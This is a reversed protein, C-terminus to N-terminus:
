FADKERIQFTHWVVTLGLGAEMEYVNSFTLWWIIFHTLLSITLWRVFVCTWGPFHVMEIHLNNFIYRQCQSSIVVKWPPNKKSIANELLYSMIRNYVLLATYYSFNNQSYFLFVSQTTQLSSWIICWEECIAEPALLDVRGSCQFWGCQFTARQLKVVVMWSLQVEGPAPHLLLISELIKWPLSNQRKKKKLFYSWFYDDSQPIM